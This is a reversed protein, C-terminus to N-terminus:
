PHELSSTHPIIRRYDDENVASHWKGSIRGLGLTGFFLSAILLIFVLPHVTRRGPLAADLAGKAPCHSVCTLCGTCEPTRVRTLQEVPILSPCNDTCRRCHICAENDRTIKVPSLLSILGLLGGYPCLYRCWFNRYALSLIFLLLLSVATTTSMRTFFYLMKVDAIKYYDGEIFNLIAAPEMKLLIIYIFLGMLVYKVSRLAYDFWRNVSFQRTSARQRLRWLADSLAGVPCIWGCFGKKLLLAMLLAALFIVLGAPHIRDFFGSLVWLKLSMLAGIPLFGEISAPRDALTLTMHQVSGPQEYQSVFLSFRYGAWVLFVLIYAQLAYRAYRIFSRNINTM